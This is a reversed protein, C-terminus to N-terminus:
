PNRRYSREGSRPNQLQIERQVAAVTQRRYSRIAVTAVLVFAPSLRLPVRTLQKCNISQRHPHSLIVLM